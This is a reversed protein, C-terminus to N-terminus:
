RLAVIYAALSQLLDYKPIEGLISALKTTDAVLANVSDDPFDQWVIDSRGLAISLQQSIERVLYGQGTGCNVVGSARKEVLGACAHAIWFADAIDRRSQAGRLTLIAGRTSSKIRQALAPVLFSAAQKTDFFSFVRITLANPLLAKVWTEGQLKTQGYHSLPNTLDEEGLPMLSPAYVHSSSIYVFGCAGHHAVAQAVNVTGVVNVHIADSLDAHVRDLPVIAACHIVSELPAVWTAIAHRDRIDGCFPIVEHGRAIMQEAIRRGLVGTAGTIGIRM